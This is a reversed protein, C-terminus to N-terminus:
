QARSGKLYGGGPTKSNAFNLVAINYKSNEELYYKIAQNTTADLIEINNKSKLVGKIDKTKILITKPISISNRVIIIKNEKAVKIRDEREKDMTM